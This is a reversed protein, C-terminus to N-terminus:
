SENMPGRGARLGARFPVLALAMILGAALFPAGPFYYPTAPGSFYGFLQTMVVPSVILTIGALSSLAGQLEGQADDAIRNSMLATIAPTIIAGLATLPMLAYVMWGQTAFALLLLGAISVVFGLVTTRVEGLKPLIFRILWGQVVAFGVGVAALSLGVEASSWAFAEKTYFSWVSPYVFHALNFLVMAAFFWAVTPFKSIQRAFGLPNARAWSFRRRNERALSEPLVVLGYLFNLMALGAAAFFPARTGLEGVLGGILPGLVFGLGFGAGILGFNQARKDPPTVDAIFANATSYTAGAIGAIFRGVFLLWLTPAFGMIVYDAALAALSVLLVPRRGFRDSLNGITSGFVFQMLAYVFSLYGGWLAAQSLPLDSLERILDPTVPVIIGIGMADLLVTFFVFYKAHPIGGSAQESRSAM